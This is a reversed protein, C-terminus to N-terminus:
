EKASVGSTGPPVVGTEHVSDGNAPPAGQGPSRHGDRWASLQVPGPSHRWRNEQNVSLIIRQDREVMGVAQYCRAASSPSRNLLVVRGTVDM